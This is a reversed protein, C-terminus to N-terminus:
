ALVEVYKMMEDRIGLEQAYRLLIQLQRDSDSMYEKMATQFVQIDMKKRNRVADCICREKDYVVIFNGYGTEATTQGILYLDMRLSNVKIDRKRLHAANYKQPVTVQLKDGERDALGHLYLATEGSYVIKPNTKQLLYLEDPWVDPAVYIGHSVREYGYEKVFEALYTKSIGQATVESTFLYGNNKEAMKQLEDKKM